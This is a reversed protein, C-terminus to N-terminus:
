YKNYKPCKYKDVFCTDLAKKTIGCYDRLDLTWYTKHWIDSAWRGWKKVQAETWGQRMKDTCGAVRLGHQAYYKLNLNLKYKKNIWHVTTKSCNNVQECTIPKGDPMILLPDNSKPKGFKKKREHMFNKFWHYSCPLSPFKKCTCSCSIIEKKNHIRNTKSGDLTIINEFQKKANIPGFQQHKCRLIHHPKTKSHTSYEGPRLGHWYGLCIAAGVVWGLYSKKNIIHKFCILMFVDMFPRKPRKESPRKKIFGNLQRRIVPHQQRDYYKGNDKLFSMIGDINSCMVGGTFNTYIYCWSIYKQLM